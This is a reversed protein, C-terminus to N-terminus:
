DEQPSTLAPPAPRKSSKKPDEAPASDPEWGRERHHELLSAPVSGVGGTSPNRVKVFLVGGRIDPGPDLDPEM